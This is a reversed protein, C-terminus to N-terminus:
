FKLKHAVPMHTRNYWAAFDAWQEEFLDMANNYQDEQQDAYHIKAELYLLYMEDYPAPVLLVTEKDTNEDYGSFSVSQGGQHTDIIRHKVKWELQSLWRVKEEYPISNQRKRNVKEIVEGLKM